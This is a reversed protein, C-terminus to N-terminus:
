ACLYQTFLSFYKHAPLGEFKYSYRFNEPLPQFRVHRIYTYLLAHKQAAKDIKGSLVLEITDPNLHLQEYVFLLYYAIEEPTKFCFANSFLLNRGELIAVEFFDSHFNAFVKKEANNKNQIYLGELFPTFSHIFHVQPFYNRIESEFKRSISFLNRAKLNRLIDSHIKEDEAVPHNFELLLRKNEDAFLSNPVLTFKNHVISCTVSKWVPRAQVAIEQKDKKDKDLFQIFKEKTIASQLALYKNEKIDLVAFSFQSSDVIVSLHYSTSNLLDFSEDTFDFAPSPISESHM